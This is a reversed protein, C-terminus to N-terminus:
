KMVSSFVDLNCQYPLISFFFFIEVESSCFLQVGTTVTIRALKLRVLGEESLRLLRYLRKHMENPKQMLPHGAFQQEKTNPLTFSPASPQSVRTQAGQM